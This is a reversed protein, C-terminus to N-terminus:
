LSINLEAAKDLSAEILDTLAAEDVDSLRKLYLCGKGIKYKGLRELIQGFGDFGGSLYLTISAARPSFGVAPTDGERGTQYRYHLNGFGVISAGWMTASEGSTLEMLERLRLSDARKAEDAIGELFADVSQGTPRTKNDSM